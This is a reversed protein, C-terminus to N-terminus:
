YSEFSEFVNKVDEYKVTLDDVVANEPGRKCFEILDLIREKPGEAVIEVNGNELNRAFGKLGLGLARKRTHYRFLVGRVHGLVIIHVREM